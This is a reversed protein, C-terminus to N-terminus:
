SLCRAVGEVTPVIEAAAVLPSFCQHCDACESGRKSDDVYNIIVGNKVMNGTEGPTVVNKVMGGNEDDALPSFCLYCQALGVKKVTNELHAFGSGCENDDAYDAAAIPSFCQHCDACESGRKSDDVYNIIVGNKVMNGTEGATVVNKVMGGNEDGAHVGCFYCKACDAFTDKKVMTELHACGSGCESSCRPTSSTVVVGNKVMKQNVEQKMIDSLLFAMTIGPLIIWEEIAKITQSKFDILAVAKGYPNEMSFEVMTMFGQGLTQQEMPVTEFDLRRGPFIKVMKYGVLEFLSDDNGSSNQLKFSGNSGKISCHNGVFEALRRTEGAGTICYVEKMLDPTGKTVDKEINRIDLTCVQKGDQDLVKTLINADEGKPFSQSRALRFVQPASIPPTFSISAQLLIPESSTLDGSVPEPSFWVDASLQSGSAVLEQLSLSYSALQNLKDSGPANSMLEFLFEGTPECQFYAVEKEGSESSISLSRKGKFLKDTQKKSFRVVLNGKHGEPLNKVKVFELHVEVLKMSPFQIPNGCNNSSSLKTDEINGIFNVPVKTVPTPSDGRNRTGATSYSKGYAEEWLKTFESFGTQLVNGPSRDSVNDNHHCVRGVAETLDKYYSDPHLQHTHWILDIDYTPVCFCHRNKQDNTRIMHLFGKYRRVAEQLYLDDTAYPRSMQYTFSMQRKVAALLDYKTFKANESGKQLDDESFPKTMDLEYPEEPYMRNWIEETKSKSTAQVSSIVNQNGLTRGYLKECDFKYRLPNLRHCHWIWECDLPVVLPEEETVPNELHKALLPLWFANYRYIARKLVHDEYLHRNRDVVALFNLHKKAAEVLDVSFTIAQAEAWERAQEKEM